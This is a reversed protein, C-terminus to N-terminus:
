VDKFNLLEVGVEFHLSFEYEGLIYHEVFDSLMEDLISLGVPLSILINQYIKAKNLM